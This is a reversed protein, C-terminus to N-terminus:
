PTWHRDCNDHNHWQAWLSALFLEVVRGQGKIPGQLMTVRAPGLVDPLWSQLEQHVLSGQVLESEVYYGPSVGGEGKKRLCPKETHGQSDQLKIQLGPHVPSGSTEAEQTSPQFDHIVMGLKVPGKYSRFSGGRSEM